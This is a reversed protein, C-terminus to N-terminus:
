KLDRHKSFFALIGSSIFPQWNFVIFGILAPAILVWAVLDKRVTLVSKLFPNKETKAFISKDTM